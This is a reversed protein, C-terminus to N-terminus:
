RDPSVKGSAIVLKELRASIKAYREDKQDLYQLATRAHSGAEAQRGEAALIEALVWHARYWKPSWRLAEVLDREASVPDGAAGALTASEYAALSPPDADEAARRSAEASAKFAAAKLSPDQVRAFLDNMHRSFWLDASTGFLQKGSGAEYAAISDRYHKENLFPPLKGREFDATVLAFTGWALLCAVGVAGSGFVLRWLRPPPQLREQPADASVAVISVLVFCVATAIVFCSFQQSVIAGVLGGCLPAVYRRAGKAARVAAFVAAFMIAATVLLGAPGMGIWADLFVNHPSEDYADPFQRTLDDGKWKSFERAFIEPGIGSFGANLALRGSDRWLPFRTGGTDRILTSRYGSFAPILFLAGVLLPVVLSSVLLTRRRKRWLIAGAILTGVVVGEIAARTGSLYIGCLCFPVVAYGFFREGPTRATLAIACGCAMSCLCFNALYIAHGLTSSPRLVFLPVSKIHYADRDLIPDFGASQSIAYLSVAIGAACVTKLCFRGFNADERCRIWLWVGLCVLGGQEILGFRRWDSGFLSLSPVSSRLTAVSLIVLYFFLLTIFWRSRNERWFAAPDPSHLALSVLGMAGGALLLAAKPTVDFFFLVGPALSLPLFFFVVVATARDLTRCSTVIV